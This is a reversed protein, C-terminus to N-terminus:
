LEIEGWDDALSRPKPPEPPLAPMERPTWHFTYSPYYDDQNDTGFDLWVHGDADVLSFGDLPGSEIIMVEALPTASFPGVNAYRENALREVESCYSRYGDDPDCVVRWILHDLKIFDEESGFAAGFLMATTNHLTWFM